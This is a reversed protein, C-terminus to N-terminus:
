EEELRRKIIICGLIVGILIIGSLVLITDTIYSSAGNTEFEVLVRNMYYIPSLRKIREPITSYMYTEFSGGLFGLLWIVVFEIIVAVASNTILHFFVVAITSVAAAGLLLMLITQPMCGWQIEFMITCILMGALNVIVVALFCPILKALYLTLNSASSLKLRQGIRNKRESAIVSALLIMSCWLFYVIEIKGYYNIATPIKVFQIPQTTIKAAKNAGHFLQSMMYEVMKAESSEKAKAYVTYTEDNLVVFVNESEEEIKSKPDIEAEEGVYKTWKIKSENSAALMAEMADSYKCGNEILYGAQFSGVTENTEMMNHFASSLAAITLVPGLIMIGLIWKSRLMLKLNNKILTWLM